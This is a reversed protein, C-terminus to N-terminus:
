RIMIYLKIYELAPAKCHSISSQPFFYFKEPLYSIKYWSAWLYTLLEQQFPEAEMRHSHYAGVATIVLSQRSTKLRWNGIWESVDLFWWCGLNLGFKNWLIRKRMLLWKKPYQSSVWNKPGSEDGWWRLWLQFHFTTCKSFGTEWNNPHQFLHYDCFGIVSIM